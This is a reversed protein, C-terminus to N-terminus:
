KKWKQGELKFSPIIRKEPYPYYREPPLEQSEIKVERGILDQTAKEPNIDLRGTIWPGEDTEIECVVYPAESELGAPPIHIVTFTKIKGRRKLEKVMLDYSGCEQCATQPPCTYSSCSKCLLGLLKGSRLADFFDKFTLKGM